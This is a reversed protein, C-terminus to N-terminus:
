KRTEYITIYQKAKAFDDVHKEHLYKYIAMMGVPPEGNKDRYAKIVKEVADHLKNVHNAEEKALAYLTDAVEPYEARIDVAHKAYKETGEIEEEIDKSLRKILEM